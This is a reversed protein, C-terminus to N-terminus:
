TMHASQKSPRLEFLPSLLWLHVFTKFGGYAMRNPDFPPNNSDGFIKSTHPDAM